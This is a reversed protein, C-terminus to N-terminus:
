NSWDEEFKRALHDILYRVAPIMGRRTPFAVHIVEQRPAWEPLVRVLSGNQLHDRVMMAPLRAIGIGRLVANKLTLMDTTILTPTYQQVVKAGDPGFLTCNHNDQVPEFALVPWDPLQTPHVPAVRDALLSPSAVLYQDAYGLVRITLNSDELPLPRVRIALDFGEGLVDVPRNLALLQLKVAPYRQAYALLMDGVHTHLLTIPCSLRVTGAPEARVSDIVAQAAEAELLMAKCRTYYAQGVDTVTFQRSTRHILRVGLREELQMVRRSLKSKPIGLTRSAAAFGGAEVVQVYYYLENLDQQM